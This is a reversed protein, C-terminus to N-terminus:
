ANGPLAGMFASGPVKDENPSETHDLLRQLERTHSSIASRCFGIQERRATAKATKENIIRQEDALLGLEVADKDHISLNFYMGDNDINEGKTAYIALWTDDDFLFLVTDGRQRGVIKKVTKGVAEAPYIRGPYDSDM